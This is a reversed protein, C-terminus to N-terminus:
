TQKVFKHSPVLLETAMVDLSVYEVVRPKKPKTKTLGGWMSSFMKGLQDAADPPKGYSKEVTDMRQELKGVSDAYIDTLQALKDIKLLLADLVKGQLILQPTLQATAITSHHMADLLNGCEDLRTLASFVTHEIAKIEADVGRGPLPLLV